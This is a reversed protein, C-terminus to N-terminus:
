VSFVILASSGGVLNLVVGADVIERWPSPMNAVTISIAVIFAVLGYAKILRSTTAKYFGGIYLPAAWLHVCSSEKELADARLVLVASWRTMYRAACYAFFLVNLVLGGLQLTTLQYSALDRVHESLTFVSDGLM